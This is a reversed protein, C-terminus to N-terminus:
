PVDPTPRPTLLHILRERPDVSASPTFDIGVLGHLWVPL